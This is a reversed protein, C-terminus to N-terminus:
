RTNDTNPPGDKNGSMNTTVTADKFTGSYIATDGMVTYSNTISTYRTKYDQTDINCEALYDDTVSTIKMIMAQIADDADMAYNMDELRENAYLERTSHLGSARKDAEHSGRPRIRLAHIRRAAVGFQRATMAAAKFMLILPNAAALKDAVRLDSAVPALIYPWMVIALVHGRLSVHIYISIVIQGDLSSTSARMWYREGDRPQSLDAAALIEEADRKDDYDLRLTKVRFVPHKRSEPARLGHGNGTAGPSCVCDCGRSDAHRASHDAPSRHPM